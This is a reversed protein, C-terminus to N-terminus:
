SLSPKITSYFLETNTLLRYLCLSVIALLNLKTKIYYAQERGLTRVGEDSPEASIAQFIACSSQFHEANPEALPEALYM